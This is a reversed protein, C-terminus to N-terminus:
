GGRCSGGSESLHPRPPLCFPDPIRLFHLTVDGTLWCHWELSADPIHIGEVGGGPGGM